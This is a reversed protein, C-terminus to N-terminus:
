TLDLNTKLGIEEAEKLTLIEKLEVYDVNEPVKADDLDIWDTYKHNSDIWRIMKNM